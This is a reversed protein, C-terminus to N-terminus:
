YHKYRLTVIEEQVEEPDITNLSPVAGVVAKKEENEQRFHSKLKHTNLDEEAFGLMKM